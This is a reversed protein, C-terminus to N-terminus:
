RDIRRATAALTDASPRITTTSGPRDMGARSTDRENRVGTIAVMLTSGAIARETSEPCNIRRDRPRSLDRRPTAHRGCGLELAGPERWRAVIDFEPCGLRPHAAPEDVIPAGAIRHMPEVVQEGLLRRQEAALFAASAGVFQSHVEDAQARDLPEQVVRGHAVHQDVAGAPHPDLTATPDLRGGDDDILAGDGPGDLPQDTRQPEPRVTGVRDDIRPEGVARPDGHHQWGEGDVARDQRNPAMPGVGQRQVRERGPGHDPQQDRQHPLPQVQDDVSRGTRALRRQQVREDAVDSGVFADDGDLVDGLQAKGAIVHHPEFRTRATGVPDTPGVQPIQDPDRHSQSGVADDHTLDTAGLREVHDPRQRCPM